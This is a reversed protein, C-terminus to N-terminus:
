AAIRTKMWLDHGNKIDGFCAVDIEQTIKEILKTANDVYVTVRWSRADMHEEGDVVRITSPRLGHVWALAYRDWRRGTLFPLVEHTSYSVQPCPTYHAGTMSNFEDSEDGILIRGSRSVAESAARRAAKMMEVEQKTLASFM